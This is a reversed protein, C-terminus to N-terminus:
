DGRELTGALVGGSTSKERTEGRLDKQGAQLCSIEDRDAEGNFVMFLRGHLTKIEKLGLGEVSSKLNRKLLAVFYPRNGRKLAVEHYRILASNM